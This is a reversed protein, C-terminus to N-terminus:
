QLNLEKLLQCYNCRKANSTPYGCILCFNLNFDKSNKKLIESLEIFGNFLNYEIEPSSKKLDLIFDLVKKRLIPYEKRYPCNVNYFKLKKLQAYIKIENEPIKMLPNIKKLYFKNVLSFNEELSQQAILQFRKYLINMLFTESFDTLNHGLALKTGGMDKAIENLLRRRILACYNCPYRFDVDGKKIEIIEDLTKGIKEKFSVIKHFINYKECFESAIKLGESRYDDIGEDISVATIPKANYVSKQIKILNFILAISDKGGSLGVVIKDEPRLMNYKSITKSIIREISQIFCKQCFKQGSHARKYVFGSEGCHDCIGPEFVEPIERSDNM